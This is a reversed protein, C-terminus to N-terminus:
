YLANLSIIISFSTSIITRKKPIFVSSVLLLRMGQVTEGPTLVLIECFEGFLFSLLRKPISRHESQLVEQKNGSKDAINIRVKHKLRMPEDEQEHNANSRLISTNGEESVVPFNLGRFHHPRPPSRGGYRGGGM